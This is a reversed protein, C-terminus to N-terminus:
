ALSPANGRRATLSFSRPPFVVTSTLDLTSKPKRQATGTTLGTCLSYPRSSHVTLAWWSELNPTSPPCCIRPKTRFISISMSWSNLAVVTSPKSFVARGSAMLLRLTIVDGSLGSYHASAAFHGGNITFDNSASVKAAPKKVIVYDKFRVMPDGVYCSQTKGIVYNKKEVRETTVASPPLPKISACSSFVFALLSLCIIRRTM